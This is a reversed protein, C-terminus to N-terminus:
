ATFAYQVSAVLLGAALQMVRIVYTKGYEVTTDCRDDWVLNVTVGHTRFDTISRDPKWMIYFDVAKYKWVPIEVFLSTAQGTVNYVVGLQSDTRAVGTAQDPQINVINASFKGSSGTSGGGGQLESLMQKVKGVTPVVPARAALVEESSGCTYVTGSKQGSGAVYGERETPVSLKPTLMGAQNISLGEGVAVAGIEAQTAKPLVSSPVKGGEMHVTGDSLESIADHVAKATPVVYYDQTNVTVTEPASALASQSIVVAGSRYQDAPVVDISGPQWQSPTGYGPIDAMPTSKTIVRVASEGPVIVSGLSGETAAKGAQMNVADEIMLAVRRVSAATRVADETEVGDSPELWQRSLRVLGANVDDGPEASHITVNGADDVQFPGIYGAEDPEPDNALVEGPTSATAISHQDKNRSDLRADLYAITVVSDPDDENAVTVAGYVTSGAKGVTLIGSGDVLVSAPGEGARASVMGATSETAIGIGLTGRANSLEAPSLSMASDVRLFRTSGTLDDWNSYYVPAKGWAGDFNYYLGTGDAYQHGTAGESSTDAPADGTWLKVCGDVLGSAPMRVTRSNGLVAVCHVGEAGGTYVPLDRALTFPLKLQPEGAM